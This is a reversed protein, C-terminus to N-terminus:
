KDFIKRRKTSLRMMEKLTESDDTEIAKSMKNLEDTFLNIQKLLAKKNMLFLESWMEENIKAIRTLDRFSDGTYNEVHSEEEYCNMLAVAIVHTLQSVFGIMEDHQGATLEVIKGFGLIEGLRKVTDINERTNEETPVVIYNAGYFMKKNANEVGYVERGAMPHVSVYEVGEPLTANIAGIVSEKVGTVDTILTGAKILHANQKMWEIFVTPYLAFIIIDARAIMKEDVEITGNDIIEHELAYDISSQRRTIAEVKYNKEKLAKAYSGGELGLGVILFNTNENITM